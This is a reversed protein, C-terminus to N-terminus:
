KWILGLLKGSSNFLFGITSGTINQLVSLERIVHHVEDSENVSITSCFVDEEGL